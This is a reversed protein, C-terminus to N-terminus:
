SNDATRGLAHAPQKISLLFASVSRDLPWNKLTRPWLDLNVSRNRLKSDSKRARDSANWTRLVRCVVAHM